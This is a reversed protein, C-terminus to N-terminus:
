HLKSPIKPMYLNKDFDVLIFEIFIYFNEIKDNVLHITEGM